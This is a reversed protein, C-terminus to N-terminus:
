SVLSKTSTTSTTSTTSATSTTSTTSSTKTTAPAESPSMATTTMPSTTESTTLISYESFTYNNYLSSNNLPEISLPVIISTNFTIGLVEADVTGNMTWSFHGKGLEKAIAELILSSRSFNQSIGNMTLHVSQIINQTTRPHLRMNNGEVHGLVVDAYM